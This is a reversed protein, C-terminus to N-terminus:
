AANPKYEHTDAAARALDILRRVMADDTFHFEFGVDFRGDPRRRCMAPHAPVLMSGAPTEVRLNVTAGAPLSVAKRSVVKAGTRSLDVIPGFQCTTGSCCLRGARRRNGGGAGRDADGNLFANTM